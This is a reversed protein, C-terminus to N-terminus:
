SEHDLLGMAQIRCTIEVGKDAGCYFLLHLKYKGEFATEIVTPATNFVNKLLDGVTEVIKPKKSDSLGSRSLCLWTAGYHAGLYECETRNSTINHVIAKQMVSNFKRRQEDDM